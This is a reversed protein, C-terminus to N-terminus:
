IYGQSALGSEVAEIAALPRPDPVSKREPIKNNTSAEGLVLRGTAIPVNGGFTWVQRRAAPTAQPRGRVEDM